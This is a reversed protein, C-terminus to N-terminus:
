VKIIIASWTFGAGQSLLLVYEDKKLKGDKLMRCYSLFVDASGCDGSDAVYDYNTKAINHGYRDIVKEFLGFGVNPFIIQDIDAVSLGVKAVAKEGVLFFNEVNIPVLKERSKEANIVDFEYYQLPYAKEPPFVNGIRMRSIDNLDGRSIMNHSIIQNRECGDEVVVAVGAEGYVMRGINRSRICCDWKDATNVLVKKANGSRLYSEATMLGATFGSCGQYIDLFIANRANIRNQIEASVNWMLYDHMSGQTNVILDIELSTVGAAELAKVSAEYAMDTATLQPEYLIATTGIKKLDSATARPLLDKVLIRGDPIYAAIGSLGIMNKSYISSVGKLFKRQSLSTPHGKGIPAHTKKVCNEFAHQCDNTSWYPPM